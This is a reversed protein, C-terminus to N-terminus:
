KVWLIQYFGRKKKQIENNKGIYHKLDYNQVSFFTPECM